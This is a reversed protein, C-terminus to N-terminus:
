RCTNGSKGHGWKLAHPLASSIVAKLELLTTYIDALWSQFASSGAGTGESAAAFWHLMKAPHDPTTPDPKGVAERREEPSGAESVSPTITAGFSLAGILAYSVLRHRLQPAISRDM